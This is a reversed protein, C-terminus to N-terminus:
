DPRDSSLLPGELTRVGHHFVAVRRHLANIDAIPDGDVAVIDADFRRRSPGQPRRSRV